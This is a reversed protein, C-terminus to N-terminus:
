PHQGGWSWSGCLPKTVIRTLIRRPRTRSAPEPAFYGRGRWGVRAINNHLITTWSFPPHHNEQCIARVIASIEKLFFGASCPSQCSTEEPMMVQCPFLFTGWRHSGMQECWPRRYRHKSDDRCMDTLRFFLFAFGFLRSLRTESPEHSWVV